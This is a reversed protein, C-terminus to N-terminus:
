ARTSAAASCRWSARERKFREQYAWQWCYEFKATDLPEYNATDLYDVGTELCADM